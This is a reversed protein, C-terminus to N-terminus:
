ERVHKMQESLQRYMTKLDLPRMGSLVREGLNARVYRRLMGQYDQNTKERVRPRVATESLRDLYENV